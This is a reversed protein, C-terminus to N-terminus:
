SGARAPAPTFWARGPVYVLFVAALDILPTVLMSVILAGGLTLHLNEPQHMFSWFQKFLTLLSFASLALLLIRAWNRGRWLQICAVVVVSLRGLTWLFLSPTVFGSNVYLLLRLVAVAAWAFGIALLVV